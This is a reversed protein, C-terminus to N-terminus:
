PTGVQGSPPVPTIRFSEARPLWGPNSPFDSHAQMYARRKDVMLNNVEVMKGALVAQEAVRRTQSGIIGDYDSKGDIQTRLDTGMVEDLAQQFWKGADLIGHLVGADFIQEVLQPAAAWLGPVQALNWIQPRDFKEARYISDIEAGTLKRPDDPLHAYKKLRRLEKLFTASLGRNTVGGKDAHRPRNAIGGERPGLNQLFLEFLEVPTAPPQAAQASTASNATVPSGQPAQSPATPKPAPLSTPTSIHGVLVDEGGGGFIQENEDEESDQNPVVYLLGFDNRDRVWFGGRAKPNEAQIKRGEEEAVAAIRGTDILTTRGYRRPVTFSDYVHERSWIADYLGRRAAGEIDSDQEWHLEGLRKAIEIRDGPQGILQGAAKRLDQTRRYGRKARPDRVWPAVPALNAEKFPMHRGKGEADRYPRAGFALAQAMGEERMQREAATAPSVRRLAFGKETGEKVDDRM